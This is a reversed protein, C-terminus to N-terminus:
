KTYESLMERREIVINLLEESTKLINFKRGKTAKATTSGVVDCVFFDVEVQLTTQSVTVLGNGLINSFEVFDDKTAYVRGDYKRPKVDGTIIIDIEHGVFKIPVNSLLYMVDELHEMFVNSMEEISDTINCKMSHALCAEITEFESIREIFGDVTSLGKFMTSLKNSYKPISMIQILRRFTHSQNKLATKIKQLPKNTLDDCELIGQMLNHMKLDKCYNELSTKSYGKLNLTTLIDNVRASLKIPCDKNDCFVTAGENRSKLPTGCVDCNCDNAFYRIYHYPIFGMEFDQLLTRVAM